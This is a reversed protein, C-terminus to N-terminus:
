LQGIGFGPRGVGISDAFASIFMGTVGVAILLVGQGLDGVTANKSGFFASRDGLPSRM